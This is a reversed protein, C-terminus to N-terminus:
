HSDSRESDSGAGRPVKKLKKVKKRARGGKQRRKLRKTDHGAGTGKENDESRKIIGKKIEKGEM